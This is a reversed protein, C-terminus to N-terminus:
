GSVEGALLWTSPVESIAFGLTGRGAVEKRFSGRISKSFSSSGDGFEKADLLLKDPKTIELLPSTPTGM